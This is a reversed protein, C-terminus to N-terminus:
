RLGWVVVAVLVLGVACAILIPRYDPEPLVSEDWMGDFARRWTDGPSM